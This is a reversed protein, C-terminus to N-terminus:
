TEKKERKRRRRERKRLGRGGALNFSFIDCFRGFVVEEGQRIVM